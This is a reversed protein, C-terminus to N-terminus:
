SPDGAPNTSTICASLCSWYATLAVDMRQEHRVFAAVECDHDGNCALLDATFANGSNAFADLFALKCNLLCPECSM